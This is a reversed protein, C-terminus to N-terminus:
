GPGGHRRGAGARAQPAATAAPTASRSCRTFVQHAADARRGRDHRPRRGTTVYPGPAPLPPAAARSAATGGAAGEEVPADLAGPEVQQRGRVLVAAVAARDPEREGPTVAVVRRRDGVVAGAHRRAPASRRREQRAPGSAARRLSPAPSPRGIARASASSCPPRIV